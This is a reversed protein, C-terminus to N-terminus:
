RIKRRNKNKFGLFSDRIAHMKNVVDNMAMWERPLTKSCSLGINMVSLLCEEIRSRASSQLDEYNIIAQEQINSGGEKEEDNEEEEFLMSPDTINTVREPLSVAIFKQISLGDKFMDDTPRKGSFM